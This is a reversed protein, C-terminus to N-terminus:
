AAESAESAGPPMGTLELATELLQRPGFPKSMVKRIITKETDARTLGFGRATLMIAPISATAPDQALATCMELGTMYPMQLDVIIVAPAHERALRLGEEGDGGTIVEFGANRFKLAVVHRIHAEDDVVLAKRTQQSDTM